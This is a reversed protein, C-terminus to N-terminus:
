IYTHTVKTRHRPAVCVFVGTHLSSSGLQNPRPCCLGAGRHARRWPGASSQAAEGGVHPGARCPIACVDAAAADGRRRWCCGCCCCSASHPQAARVVLLKPRLAKQHDWPQHLSRLSGACLVTLM